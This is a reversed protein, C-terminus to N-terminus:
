KACKKWINWKKPMKKQGKKNRKKDNIMSKKTKYSLPLPFTFFNFCLKIYDSIRQM